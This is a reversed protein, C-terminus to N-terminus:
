LRVERKSAIKHLKGLLIAVILIGLMLGEIANMISLAAAVILGINGLAILIVVEDHRGSNLAAKQYFHERHALWIKEGRLARRTITIGSDALYYLPLILAAALYGKVALSLLCFGVLYGLPISGVDGLFIRAPHWNQTLFGLCAGSICLMLFSVFPDEISAATQVLCLGCGILITEVGTIGDIGDMFNYLNTFWVWGLIM